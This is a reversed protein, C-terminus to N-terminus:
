SMLFRDFADVASKKPSSAVEGIAGVRAPLADVTNKLMALKEPTNMLQYAFRESESQPVIGKAILTQVVEGAVKEPPNANRLEAAAQRCLSAAKLLINDQTSM